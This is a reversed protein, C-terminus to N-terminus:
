IELIPQFELNKQLKKDLCSTSAGGFNGILFELGKAIRHILLWFGAQLFELKQFHKALQRFSRHIDLLLWM